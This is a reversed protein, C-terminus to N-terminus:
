GIKNPRIQFIYTILIMMLIDINYINAGGQTSSLTKSNNIIYKTTNIYM